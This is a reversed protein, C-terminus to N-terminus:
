YITEDNKLKQTSDNDVVSNNVNAFNKSDVCESFYVFNVYKLNIICIGIVTESAVTGFLLLYFVVGNM